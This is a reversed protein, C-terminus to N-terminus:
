GAPADQDRSKVVLKVALALKQDPPLSRVAVIAEEASDILELTGSRSFLFPEPSYDADHRADQLAAFTVAIAETAPDRSAKQRSANLVSRAKAHELSRHVPTFVGYPRRWGVLQDACLYALTHVLAYSASSASRRLSVSKPRGVDRRALERALDILDDPKM